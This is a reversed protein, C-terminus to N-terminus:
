IYNQFLEELGQRIPIKPMFGLESTVLDINTQSHVIDGKRPPSFKIELTKESISLMLNALDFISIFNGSAINYCNGRKGDINKIANKISDVVDKVSIFDRTNSGDGFIILLKDERINKMFKTIVGAYADTQGKGYVNFFRLCISNLNNKLSFDRILQEMDLKSQGYPSIPITSSTETLPLKKPIGYVAASSAAIINKVNQMLCAKLVNETGAVNVELTKEPNLFSEVVDIQAALHIVSNHGALNKELSDYDRLDGKVLSAGKDLLHSITEISSNSFNDFITVSEGMTLLSDVLTSGIFGAGGTVFIV